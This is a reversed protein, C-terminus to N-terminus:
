LAHALLMALAVLAASGVLGAALSLLAAGIM